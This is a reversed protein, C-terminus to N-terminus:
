MSVTGELVGERLTFKLFLRILQPEVAPYRCHVFGRREGGQFALRRGPRFRGSEGLLPLQITQGLAQVREDLM